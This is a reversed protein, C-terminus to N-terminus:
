PRLHGHQLIGELEGIGEEYRGNQCRYVALEVRSRLFVPRQEYTWWLRYLQACRAMLEPSQPLASTCAVAALASVTCAALRWAVGVPTIM